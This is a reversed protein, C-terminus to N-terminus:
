YLFWNIGTSPSIAYVTAVANEGGLYSSCGSVRLASYAAWNRRGTAFPPTYYPSQARRAVVRDILSVVAWAVLVPSTPSNLGETAQEVWKPLVISVRCLARSADHRGSGKHQPREARGEERERGGLWGAMGCLRDQANHSSREQAKTRACAPLSIAGDISRACWALPGGTLEERKERPAAAAPQPSCLKPAHLRDRLSQKHRWRESMWKPTASFFEGPFHPQRTQASRGQLEKFSVIPISSSRCCNM